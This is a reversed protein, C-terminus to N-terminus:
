TYLKAHLEVIQRAAERIDPDNVYGESSAAPDLNEDLFEQLFQPQHALYVRLGFQFLAAGLPRFATVGRQEWGRVLTLGEDVVDTADNGEDLNVTGAAHAATLRYAFAGCLAHRAKLGVEAAEPVNAEVESVIALVKLAAERAREAAERAQEDPGNAALGMVVGNWFNAQNTLVVSMVYPLDEIRAAAESGLVSLAEELDAIVADPTGHGQTFLARNQLALALRRPFRPDEDLPLGRLIDVAQSCSRVAEAVQPGGDLRVLAEARNLWCAAVGYRLVPSTDFPLAERIALARDFCALAESAAEPRPDAMLEMGQHMLDSAAADAAEVDPSLSAAM